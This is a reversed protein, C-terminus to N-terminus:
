RQLFSIANDGSLVRGLVLSDLSGAERPTWVGEVTLGHEWSQGSQGMAPVKRNPVKESPAQQLSGEWVVPGLRGEEWAGGSCGQGVENARRALQGESPEPSDGPQQTVGQVPSWPQGLLAGDTGGVATGQGARTCLLHETFTQQTNGGQLYHHTLPSGTRVPIM